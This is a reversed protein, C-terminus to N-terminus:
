FMHLVHATMFDERSIEGESCILISCCGGWKKILELFFFFHLSTTYSCIFFSCFLILKARIVSKGCRNRRRRRRRDRERARTPYISPTMTTRRARRPRRKRRRGRPRSRAAHEGLSAPRLPGRSRRTPSRATRGAARRSARSRQSSSPPCSAGSAVRPPPRSIAPSGPNNLGPARCAHRNPLAAASTASRHPM